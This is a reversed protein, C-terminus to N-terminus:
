VLETELKTKRMTYITLLMSIASFFLVPSIYITLRPWICHIQAPFFDLLYDTATPSDLFFNYIITVPILSVWFAQLYQMSCFYCSRRCAIKFGPLKYKHHLAVAYIIMTFFVMVGAMILSFDPKQIIENRFIALSIFAVAFSGGVAVIGQPFLLHRYYRSAEELWEEKKFYAYLIVKSALCVHLGVFVFFGITSSWTYQVAYEQWLGVLVIPLLILGLFVTLAPQDLFYGALKDFPFSLHPTLIEHARRYDQVQVLRRFSNKFQTEFTRQEEKWYEFNKMFQIRSTLISDYGNGFVREREKTKMYDALKDLLSLGTQVRLQPSDESQRNFWDYHATSFFEMLRELADEVKQKGAKREARSISDSREYKDMSDVFCQAATLIATLKKCKGYSNEDFTDTVDDQRKWENKLKELCLVIARLSDQVWDLRGMAIREEIEDFTKQLTHVRGAVYKEFGQSFLKCEKHESNTHDVQVFGRELLSKLIPCINLDSAPLSKMQQIKLIWNREEDNLVRWMRDFEERAEAYFCDQWHDIRSDPERGGGRVWDFLHSCAMKLFYPHKGAQQIVTNIESEEFQLRGDEINKM